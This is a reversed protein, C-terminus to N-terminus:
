IHILSLFEVFLELRSLDALETHSRDAEWYYVHGATAPETSVCLVSGHQNALSAFVLTGPPLRRDNRLATTSRVMSSIGAPATAPLLEQVVLLRAGWLTDVALYKDDVYGGNSARLYSEFSAPLPGTMAALEDIASDDAPERSRSLADLLSM